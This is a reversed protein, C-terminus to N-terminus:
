AEGVWFIDAGKVKAEGLRKSLGQLASIRSERQALLGIMARACM